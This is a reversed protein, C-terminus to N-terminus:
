RVQDDMSELISTLDSTGPDYSAISNGTQVAIGTAM